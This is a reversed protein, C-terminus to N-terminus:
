SDQTRRLVTDLSNGFLWRMCLSLKDCNYTCHIVVMLLIVLLAFLHFLHLHNAAFTAAAM